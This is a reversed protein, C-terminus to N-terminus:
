DDDLHRAYTELEKILSPDPTGRQSKIWDVLSLVELKGKVYFLKKGPRQPENAGDEHAESQITATETADLDGNIESKHESKIGNVLGNENEPRVSGTKNSPEGQHQSKAPDIAGNATPVSPGAPRESEGGASGEERASEQIREDGLNSMHANDSATPKTKSDQELMAEEHETPKAKPKPPRKFRKNPNVWGEATECIIWSGWDPFNHKYQFLWYRHKYADQGLGQTRQNYKKQQFYYRQEVKKIKARSQKQAAGLKDKWQQEPMTDQIKAMKTMQEEWAAKLQKIEDSVDKQIYRLQEVDNEITLRITETGTAIDVMKGILQLPALAEDEEAVDGFEIAAWQLYEKVLEWLRPSEAPTKEIETCYERAYPVIPNTDNAVVKILSVALSKFLYENWELLPDNITNTHRNPLRCLKDFRLMFERLRIKEWLVDMRDVPIEIFNPPAVKKKPVKISIMVKQEGNPAVKAATKKEKSVKSGKASKKSDKGDKGKTAKKSKSKSKTSKPQSQIPEAVYIPKPAHRVRGSTRRNQASEILEPTLTNDISQPTPPAAPTAPAFANPTAPSDAAPETM